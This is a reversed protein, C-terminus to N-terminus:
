PLLQAAIAQTRLRQVASASTDFETCLDLRIAKTLKGGAAKIRDAVLAPTLEEGSASVKLPHRAKGAAVHNAHARPAGYALAPGAGVAIFALWARGLRDTWADASAADFPYHDEFHEAFREALAFLQKAAEVEDYQGGRPPSGLEAMYADLPAMLYKRLMIHDDPYVGICAETAHVRLAGCVHRMYHVDFLGAWQEVTTRQAPRRAKKEAPKLVM